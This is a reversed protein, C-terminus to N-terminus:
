CNQVSECAAVSVPTVAKERLLYDMKFNFSSRYTCKLCVIILVGKLFM